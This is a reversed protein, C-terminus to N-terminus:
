HATEGWLAAGMRAAADTQMKDMVHQYRSTMSIQSHGLIAMVVRTDVGQELLLTAATHRADHLRHRPVEARALLDIWDQWDARPDIPKGNTQAFVLDLTGKWATGAALREENQAKRHAKLEALLPPPLAITRQSSRSKTASLVLGRGKIRQLARRVTLTGKDLDVDPWTLGLAEGQRLGLSLAVSWRAANRTEHCADLVKRAQPGSLPIIEEDPVSPADILTCVNRSVYGRQHAVKLARSLIRHCQQVSRPALPTPDDKVPNGTEALEHWAQEVQEPRLKDLRHRGLLPILYQSLKSEYGALTTPRVKKAAITQLWVELWEAVTPARGIPLEGRTQKEKLERLRQAAKARSNASVTRRVPKDGRWSVVVSGVWRDRSEVYYLSGDGDSRTTSAM